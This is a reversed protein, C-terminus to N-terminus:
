AAASLDGQADNAAREQARKAAKDRADKVLEMAALVELLASASVEVTATKKDVRGSKVAELTEHAAPSLEGAFFETAEVVEKTVRGPLAKGQITGVTVKTKGAAKAKGLEEQLVQGADEGHERVLKVATAGSVTGDKVMQQVDSNANALILLQDVHQRTKGVMDAIEDPTKGFAALKKYGRAVELPALARGEASTMIRAVRDADNGTFAVISIAGVPAGLEDRAKVFARRRRHGDVVFVGGAARPRVELAPVIGGAAIYQALASISADLDEGEERLNFGPEEHISDLAIKMADARTIEKDSIMQKFSKAAQTM